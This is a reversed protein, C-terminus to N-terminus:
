HFGLLRGPHFGNAYFVTGVRTLSFIQGWPTAGPGPGHNAMTREYDSFGYGTWAIGHADSGRCVMLESKRDM